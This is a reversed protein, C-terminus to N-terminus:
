YGLERATAAVQSAAVWVPAYKRIATNNAWMSAGAPRCRMFPVVLKNGDREEILTCNMLRNFTPHIMLLEATSNMDECQVTHLRM